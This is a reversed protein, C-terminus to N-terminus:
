DCLKRLVEMPIDKLMKRVEEPFSSRLVDDPMDWHTLKKEQQGDQPLKEEQQGGEEVMKENNISISVHKESDIM